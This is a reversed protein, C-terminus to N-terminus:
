QGFAKSHQLGGARNAPSPWRGKEFRFVRPPRPEGPPHIDPWKSPSSLRYKGVFRGSRTVHAFDDPNAGREILRSCCNKIPMISDVVAVGNISASTTGSRKGYNLGVHFDAM